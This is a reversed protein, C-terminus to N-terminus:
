CGKEEAHGLVEAERCTHPCVTVVTPDVGLGPADYHQAPPSPDTIPKEERSVDPLPSPRKRHGSSMRHSPQRHGGGGPGEQTMGTGTEQPGPGCEWLPPDPANPPLGMALSRECQRCGKRSPPPTPRPDWVVSPLSPGTYLLFPCHPSLHKWM